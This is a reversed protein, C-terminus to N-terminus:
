LNEKIKGQALKEVFNQDRMKATFRKGTAIDLFRWKRDEISLDPTELIVDSVREQPREIPDSDQEWLGSRDAFQSSPIMIAPPEGAAECIGVGSVSSDNSIVNFFNRNSKKLEESRSITELLELFLEKEEDTMELAMPEGFWYEIAPGADVTLFIALGAALSALRPHKIKELKSEGWDLITNLSLSGEHASIFEVRVKATPEVMNAAYRVSNVWEIAARSVIELDANHGERLGFYLSLSNVPVIQLLVGM